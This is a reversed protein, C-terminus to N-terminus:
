SAQKPARSTPRLLSEIDFAFLRDGPELGEDALPDEEEDNHLTGCSDPCRTFDITGKRWNIDPNHFELWDHGLFLPASGLDALAVPIKEAHGQITVLLEVYHTINQSRNPSGDANKVPQIM